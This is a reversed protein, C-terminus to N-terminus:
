HLFPYRCPCTYIGAHIVSRLAGLLPNCLAAAAEEASAVDCRSLTVSATCSPDGLLGAIIRSDARGSRGLLCLDPCGAAALFSSM